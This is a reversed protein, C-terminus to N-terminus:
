LRYYASWILEKITEKIGGMGEKEIEHTREQKQAGEKTEVAIGTRSKISDNGHHPWFVATNGLPISDTNRFESSKGSTIRM